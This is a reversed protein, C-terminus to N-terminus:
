PPFSTETAMNQNVTTLVKPQLQLLSARRLANLERAMYNGVLAESCKSHWWNLSEQHIEEMLQKDELLKQLLVELDQWDKIQIVPAGDLYWRSPLAETVVICGYKMAEFLRTTEFSTGRPVLCIKTNMMTEPYSSADKNLSAFYGQTIDLEIQYNPHKQKFKNLNKVMLQRAFMKPTGLWRKISWIPYPVHVVSGSFYADYLREKMEKIPLEISNNYGLPIDYIPSIKGEGLLFIKFKHFQYNVLGPLRVFLIRLFQILTLLSLYSPQFLANCGLIPRTGICKFIAGVKHTYKPIRYWEDGLVIVVVNQGYSPLENIEHCTIYFILGKLKLSKEMAQLVQRVYAALGFYLPLNTDYIDWPIPQQNRELHIYYQNSLSKLNPM